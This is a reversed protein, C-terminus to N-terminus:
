KESYILCIFYFLPGLTTKCWNQLRLDINESWLFFDYAVLFVGRSLARWCCCFKSVELTTYLVLIYYVSLRKGIRRWLRSFRELKNNTGLTRLVVRNRLFLKSFVKRLMSCAANRAKESLAFFVLLSTFFSWLMDIAIVSWDIVINQGFWKFQCM